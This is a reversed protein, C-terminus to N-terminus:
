YVIVRVSSDHSFEQNLWKADKVFLRVCGHSDHYGPVDYSGHLAYGRHFFMCYPMPAGGKGVPYKTSFCEAGEKSQIHYSGKPTACGRGIDPCYKKGTSVPGWYVLSGDTDYAGFALLEKSIHITKEGSPEIQTPFPAYNLYNSFLTPVAIKMGKHLPTNMRNIRMIVDRQTEDPFLKKWNDGKKTTYCAYEPKNCFNAGFTKAYLSPYFLSFIILMIIIKLSNFMNGGKKFKILLEGVSHM